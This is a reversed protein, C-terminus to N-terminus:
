GACEWLVKTALADRARNRARSQDTVRAPPSALFVARWERGNRIIGRVALAAARRSEAYVSQVQLRRAMSLNRAASFSFITIILSRACFGAHLCFIFVLIARLKSMAAASNGAQGGLGGLGGRRGAAVALGDLVGDVSRLRGRRRFARFGINRGFARGIRGHVRGLKRRRDQACARGGAGLQSTEIPQEHPSSNPLTSPTFVDLGDFGVWVHVHMMIRSQRRAPRSRITPAM